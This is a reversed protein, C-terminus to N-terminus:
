HPFTHAHTVFMGHCQLRSWSSGAVLLLLCARYTSHWERTSVALLKPCYPRRLEGQTAFVNRCYSTWRWISLERHIAKWKAQSQDLPTQNRLVLMDIGLLCWAQILVLLSCWLLFLLMRLCDLRMMLVVIPLVIVIGTLIDLLKSEQRSVVCLGWQVMRSWARSSLCFLKSSSTPWLQSTCFQELGQHLIEMWFIGDLNRQLEQM